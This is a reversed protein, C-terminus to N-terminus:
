ASWRGGRWSRRWNRCWSRCTRGSRLRGVLWRGGPPPRLTRELGAGAILSGVAEGPLVEEEGPMSILPGSRGTQRKPPKHAMQAPRPRLHTEKSSIITTLLNGVTWEQLTEAGAQMEPIPQEVVLALPDQM